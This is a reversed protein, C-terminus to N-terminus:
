IGLRYTAKERATTTRGQEPGMQANVAGNLPVTSEKKSRHQSSPLTILLAQSNARFTQQWPQAQPTNQTSGTGSCNWISDSGLGPPPTPRALPERGPGPVMCLFQVM